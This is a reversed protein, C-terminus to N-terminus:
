MIGREVDAAFQQKQQEDFLGAQMIEFFRQVKPQYRPKAAGGYYNVFAAAGNNVIYSADNCLDSNRYIFRVSAVAEKESYGQKLLERVAEVILPGTVAKRIKPSLRRRRENTENTKM